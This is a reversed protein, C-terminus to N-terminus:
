TFAPIRRVFVIYLRANWGYRGRGADEKVKKRYEGDAFGSHDEGTGVIVDLM